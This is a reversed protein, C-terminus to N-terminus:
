LTNKLDGEKAIERVRVTKGEIQRGRKRETLRM